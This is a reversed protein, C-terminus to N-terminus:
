GLNITAFYGGVKKSGKYVILEKKRLYDLARKINMDSLGTMECIRPKRIGPSSKIAEYVIKQLRPLEINSCEKIEQKDYTVDM